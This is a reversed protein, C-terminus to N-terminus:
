RKRRAAMVFLLGASAILLLCPGLVLLLVRHWDDTDFLVGGVLSWLLAAGLLAFAWDGLSRATLYQCLRNSNM